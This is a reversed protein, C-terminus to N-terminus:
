YKQEAMSLQCELKKSWEKFCDKLYAFQKRFQRGFTHNNNYSTNYNIIVLNEDEKSEKRSTQKRRVKSEDEKKGSANMSKHKSKDSPAPAKLLM